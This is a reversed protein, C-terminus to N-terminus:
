GNGVLNGAYRPLAAFEIASWVPLLRRASGTVDVEGAAAATVLGAEGAFIAHATDASMSLIIEPQLGSPGCDVVPTANATLQVTILAEPESLAFQLTTEALQLRPGLGPSRVIERIFTGLDDYVATETSFHSMGTKGVAASGVLWLM